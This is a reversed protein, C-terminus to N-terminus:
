GALLGVVTTQAVSRGVVVVVRVQFSNIEALSCDKFWHVVDEATM